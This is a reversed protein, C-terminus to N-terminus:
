VKARKFALVGSPHQSVVPEAQRSRVGKLRGALQVLPLTLPLLWGWRLFAESVRTGAAM